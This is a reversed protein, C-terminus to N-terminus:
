NWVYADVLRYQKISTLFSAPNRTARCGISPGLLPEETVGYRFQARMDIQGFAKDAFLTNPKPEFRRLERHLEGCILGQPL